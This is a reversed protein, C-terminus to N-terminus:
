CLIVVVVDVVEEVIVVCGDVCVVLFREGFVFWVDGFLCIWGDDCVCGCGVCMMEVM